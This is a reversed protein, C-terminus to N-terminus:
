RLKRVDRLTVVGVLRGNETVYARRLDLLSFLSHIKNIGVGPVLQLPAPDILSEDLVLESEGKSATCGQSAKLLKQLVIRTVSGILMM